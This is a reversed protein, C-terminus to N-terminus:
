KMEEGTLDKWLAKLSNEIGSHPALMMATTFKQSDYDRIMKAIEAQFDTVSGKVSLNMIQLALEQLNAPTKQTRSRREPCSHEALGLSSPFEEHCLGCYNESSM